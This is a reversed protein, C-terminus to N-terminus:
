TTAQLGVATNHLATQLFCERYSSHHLTVREVRAHLQCLPLHEFGTLGHVLRAQIDGDINVRATQFLRELVVCVIPFGLDDDHPRPDPLPDHTNQM